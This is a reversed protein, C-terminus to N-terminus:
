LFISVKAVSDTKVKAGYIKIKDTDM